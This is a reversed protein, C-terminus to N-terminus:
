AASESEGLGRNVAIRRMKEISRHYLQVTRTTSIGIEKAIASFSAGEHDRDIGFRSMVIYRDRAELQNILAVASAQSELRSLTEIQEECGLDEVDGLDDGCLSMRSAVRQRRGVATLMSRSIAQYAYTSFRLGRRFDFLEVARVLAGSGVGILDDMEGPFSAAYKKAISVVLRLNAEILRNRTQEARKRYWRRELHTWRQEADSALYKLFHYKRFQQHEAEKSLLPVTYLSAYFSQLGTPARRRKSGATSEPPDALIADHQSEDAFEDCYYYEGGTGTGSEAAQRAAQTVPGLKSVVDM